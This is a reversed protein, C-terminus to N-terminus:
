SKGWMAQLLPDRKNAEIQRLLQARDRRAEDYRGALIDRAMQQCEEHIAFFSQPLDPSLAKPPERTSTM